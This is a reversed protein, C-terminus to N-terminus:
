HGFIDALKKRLDAGRLNKAIIRGEPDLLLSFPIASINYTQAAESQWYQLDSVQTWNLGDEKIAQLWKDRTRDLSVGYVEFGDKNYKEYVAVVNPNEIRCPRCWQAWFDVLVYNGRLSSLPVVEGDPNPLSIEPAVSGIALKEMNNVMQVFDMARPSEPMDKEVRDAYAKLAQFHDDPNIMQQNKMVEVVGLSTEMTDASKLLQTKFNRDLEMYRSRLSDMTEGDNAQQAAVFADNIGRIQMSQQFEQISQQARVIFDHDASGKVEAYGRPQQGDVTLEIDDDDLILNVVQRGFFDLKYYSPYPVEVRESFTKDGNLELTDIVESEGSADVYRSLIIQRDAQPNMVKGSITIYSGDAQQSNSESSCAYLIGTVAVMIMIKKM